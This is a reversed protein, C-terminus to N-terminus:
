VFCYLMCSVSYWRDKLCDKMTEEDSRNVQYSKDIYVKSGFRVKKHVPSSSVRGSSSSEDSNIRRRRMDIIDLVVLFQGSEDIRSDNSDCSVIDSQKRKRSSSSCSQIFKKHKLTSM